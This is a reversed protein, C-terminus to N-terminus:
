TRATAAPCPSAWRCAWFKPATPDHGLCLHREPLHLHHRGCDGARPAAYEHHDEGGRLLRRHHQTRRHAYGHDPGRGRHREGAERGRRGMRRLRGDPGTCGPRGERRVPSASGPRGQRRDRYDRPRGDRAPRRRGPLAKVGYITEAAPHVPYLKGAYGFDVLNQVIRFGLKGPTASAGVVVIGEPYFVPRLADHLDRQLANRAAPDLSGIASPEAPGEDSLAIHADVAIAGSESLIVPNIDLEAINERFLLGEPGGVASLIAMLADVGGPCAAAQALHRLDAEGLPALRFAVNAREEVGTGGVGCMVVPGFVPDLVAGVVAEHGPAAMPEVVVGEVTEAQAAATLEGFVAEAETAEVNLRVGGAAAKHVVGSAAIKMAVPGGAARALAAAEEATRALRGDTTPIGHRRLLAKARHELLVAM